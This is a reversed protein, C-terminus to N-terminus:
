LPVFYEPVDRCAAAVSECTFNHGIRIERQDTMVIIM